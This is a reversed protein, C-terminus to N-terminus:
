KEDSYIQKFVEALHGAFIETTFSEEVARRAGLAIRDRIANDRFFKIRKIIAEKDYFDVLEINEGDKTYDKLCERKTAIVPLGSAMAELMVIQGSCDAGEHHNDPHTISLLIKAKRYKEELENKKIDFNVKVNNPIDQIGVLNRRSAVIEFREEPMARAVEIVTRYDRGNDRGASLIFDERGERTFKLYSADVGFPVFFLKARLFDFEELCFNYQQMGLCVMADVSRLLWRILAGKIRKEKNHQWLRKLDINLIIFKTRTPLIKRFILMNLLPSGFVIDQGFTTFYTFTHRLNYGILKGIVSSIPGSWREKYSAEIDYKELHNIGYFMTDDFDVGIRGKFKKRSGAYIYLVRM